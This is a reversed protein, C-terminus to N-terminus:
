LSQIINSIIKSVQIIHESTIGYHTVFRIQNNANLALVGNKTLQSMIKDMPSKLPFKVLLINTDPIEVHLIDQQENLLRALLQANVHDERLREIWQKELAALGFVALIGAQRMGGGIMKRFKLAKNIFTRSGLIMSGVPCSLGKSFCFMLSDVHQSFDTISRNLALAANFIRAGDMHFKLFHTNSFERLSKLTEPTIVKGGYWNHTNEIALLTTPPQHVDKRDRILMELSEINPTGQNSLYLWPSVGAIRAASGVEYLAMHSRTEFLVEDGPTTQSLLSLLNAQTGSTCFLAAEKDFIKATKEELLNVTPDEQYVDDGLQDNTMSKVREWMEPSPKTVTDSRLDITTKNM